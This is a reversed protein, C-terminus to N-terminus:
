NFKISNLIELAAQYEKSDKQETISYTTNTTREGPCFDGIYKLIKGNPLKIGTQDLKSSVLSTFLCSESDVHWIEFGNSLTTAIKGKGYTNMPSKTPDEPDIRIDVRFNNTTETKPKSYLYIWFENGTFKNVGVPEDDFGPEGWYKSYGEMHWDSPYKFSFGGFTSTYTSLGDNKNNEVSSTERTTQQQSPSSSNFNNAKQKSQWVYWGVFGIIGVIVLVLLGEVVSFGKQNKKM